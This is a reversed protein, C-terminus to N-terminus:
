TSVLYLSDNHFMIPFSAVKEDEDDEDGLDMNDQFSFILLTFSLFHGSRHNVVNIWANNHATRGEAAEV